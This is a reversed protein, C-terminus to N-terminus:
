EFQGQLTAGPTDSNTNYWSHCGWAIVPCKVKEEAGVTPGVKGDRNVANEPQQQELYHFSRDFTFISFHLCFINNTLLPHTQPVVSICYMLGVFTPAAAIAMGTLSLAVEAVLSAPM